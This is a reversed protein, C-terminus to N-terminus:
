LACPFSRVTCPTPSIWSMDLAIRLATSSALACALLSDRESAIRRAIAFCCIEGSPAVRLAPIPVGEAFADDALDVPEFAVGLVGTAPLDAALLIDAVPIVAGLFVVGAFAAGLFAFGLFAAVLFAAGLFAVGLLTAEFFAVTLWTVGPFFAVPFVAILFAAGFFATELVVTEPFAAELCDDVPFAAEEPFAVDLLAAILFVADLLGSGLVDETFFFATFLLPLRLAAPFYDGTCPIGM